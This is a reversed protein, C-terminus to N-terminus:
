RGNTSVAPLDDFAELMAYKEANLELGLVFEGNTAPPHRTHLSLPSAEPYEPCSAACTRAPLGACEGPFIGWLGLRSRRWGPLQRRCTSASATNAERRFGRAGQSTGTVEPSEQPPYTASCIMAQRNQVPVHCSIDLFSARITVSLAYLLGRWLGFKKGQRIDIPLTLLTCVFSLTHIPYEHGVTNTRLNSLASDSLSFFSAASLSFALSNSIM